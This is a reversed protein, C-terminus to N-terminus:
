CAAGGTTRDFGTRDFEHVYERAHAGERPAPLCEELFPHTFAAADRALSKLGLPSALHLYRPKPQLPATTTLDPMSGGARQWAALQKCFVEDPVGHETALALLRRVGAESGDAAGTLHSLDPLYWRRRQLVLDGHRIRPVRTVGATRRLYQDFTPQVLGGGQLWLAIRSPAPLLDWRTSTIVVPRHGDRTTVRVDGPADGSEIVADAWDDATMAERLLPPHVGTNLGHCGRDERVRPGLFRHLRERLEETARGGALSDLHLFRALTAGAGAFIGNCVWQPGTTAPQLMLAYSADPRDTWAPLAERWAAVLSDPLAVDDHDEHNEHTDSGILEAIDTLVRQRFRWLQGLAENLAPDALRPTFTTTDTGTVARAAEAALDEATATLSLRTGRARVADHLALRLDHKLDFASLVPLLKRVSDLVGQPLDPAGLAVAADEYLGLGLQDAHPLQHAAQAVDELLARRREPLADVAAAIRRLPERVEAGDPLADVTDDLFRPSQEDVALAPLLVKARLAGDVVREAAGEACGLRVALREVVDRREHVGFRAVAVLADLHPTRGVTVRRPGEDGIRLFGLRGDGAPLLPALRVHVASGHDLVSESITQVAGRQVDFASLLLTPKEPDAGPTAFGVGTFRARPSTRLMARHAYAVLGAESKRDGRSWSGVNGAYRARATDLDLSVLALSSAFDEQRCVAALQARESGTVDPIRSLFEELLGAFERVAFEWRAVAEGM